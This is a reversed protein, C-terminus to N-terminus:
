APEAVPIQLHTSVAIRNWTNILAASMIIHSIEEESFYQEAEAYTRDSVGHQHIFTIEETIALIAKEEPTFINTERWASILFIRQQTEGVHLAEKTHMDLCYACANIQSARIKILQKQIPTIKVKNVNGSLNLMAKYAAPFATEMNLRQEM